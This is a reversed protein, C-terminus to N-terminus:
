PAVVGVPRGPRAALDALAAALRRAQDALRAYTTEQGYLTCAVHEPFRRAATEMLASVPVNPYPLSSPVDCPYADLWAREWLPVPARREPSIGPTAMNGRRTGVSAARM